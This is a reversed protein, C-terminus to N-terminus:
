LTSVRIHAGVLEPSAAYIKEAVWRSIRSDDKLVGTQRYPSLSDSIARELKDLDPKTCAWVPHMPRKPHPLRFTVNVSVPGNYNLPWNAEEAAQLSAARVASRWAALEAARDHVVVPRGGRVYARHSGETIPMGLVEFAISRHKPM